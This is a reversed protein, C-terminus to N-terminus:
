HRTVAVIAFGTIMALGVAGGAQLIRAWLEWLTPASVGGMVAEAEAFPALLALGVGVAEILLLGALGLTVRLVRARASWAPWVSLVAVITIPTCLVGGLSWQSVVYAGHADPMEM